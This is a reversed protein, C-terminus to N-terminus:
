LQVSLDTWHEGTPPESVADSLFTAGDLGMLDTV